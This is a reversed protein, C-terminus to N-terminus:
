FIFARCFHVKKDVFIIIGNMIFDRYGVYSAKMDVKGAPVPKITYNGDFDSTAGGMQVGGSLVVINAFPIPEKTAEDIIKGKLTGGSQSFVLMSSTLIIGIALLLNRLM